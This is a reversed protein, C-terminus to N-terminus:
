RFRGAYPRFRRSIWMINRNQASFREKTELYGRRLSRFRAFHSPTVHHRTPKLSSSARQLCACCVPVTGRRRLEAKPPHFPFTPIASGIPLGFVVAAGAVTIRLTSQSYAVPCGPLCCLMISGYALLGAMRLSVMGDPTVPFQLVIVHCLGDCGSRRCLCLCGGGHKRNKGCTDETQSDDSNSAVHLGGCQMVGCMVHTM